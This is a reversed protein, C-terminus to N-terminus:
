AIVVFDAAVINPAGTLTAFLIATSGAGTGDADYYLNGNIGNYIIRDSADHAANAGAAKYFAAAPLNGLALATFIDDDLRILDDALSYATITDRNTAANLASNFDYKDL